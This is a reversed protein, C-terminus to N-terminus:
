FDSWSSLKNESSLQLTTSLLQKTKKNKLIFDDVVIITENKIKDSLVQKFDSHIILDLVNKLSDKLESLDDKSLNLLRQKTEDSVIESTGNESFLDNLIFTKIEERLCLSYLIMMKISRLEYLDQVNTELLFADWFSSNDIGVFSIPIHKRKELKLTYDIESQLIPYSENNTIK